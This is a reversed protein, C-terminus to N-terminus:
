PLSSGAKAFTTELPQGSGIPFLTGGKLIRFKQGRWWVQNGLLGYSWLGFSLLDRLPVLWLLRTAVKDKLYWVGLLWGTFLRVTWVLSLVIWGLGSEHSFLLFGLSLATGHTFFLGWYGGP